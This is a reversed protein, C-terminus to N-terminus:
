RPAAEIVSRPVDTPIVNTLELDSAALLARYEDETRERGGSLVLMHLDYLKAFSPGDGPPIVQELILLRAHDEMAQRCNQLISTSHEDNWDHIVWSLIYVDGGGPVTQFFDGAMVECRDLVGAGALLREAAPTVNPLDFLIGRLEPRAQLLGALFAGSGGGVDVVTTFPSFDYAAAVARAAAESSSAMAENFVAATHPNEALHEFFPRGAVRDFATEGTRVSDLLGGWATYWDEGNLIARARLAGSTGIALCRGIMTTSFRGNADETVLGLGGLTRMLRYLSPAHTETAKALTEIDRPGDALHDAIGLKAATYIVQTTWYGNTMQLLAAQAEALARAGDREDELGSM